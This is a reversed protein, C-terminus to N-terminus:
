LDECFPTRGVRALAALEEERTAAGPPLCAIAGPRTLRKSLSGVDRSPDAVRREQGAAREAEGPLARAQEPHPAPDDVLGADLEELLREIAEALAIRPKTRPEERAQRDIEVPRRFGLPDQREALLRDPECPLEAVRPVEGRHETRAPYGKPSRLRGLLAEGDGVLDHAEALPHGIALERQEAAPKADDSEELMAVHDGGVALDLRPRLDGALQALRGIQRIQRPPPRRPRDHVAAEGLALLVRPARELEALALGFDLGGHAVGNLHADELKMPSLELVGDAGGPGPRVRRGRHQQATVAYERPALRAARGLCPAIEARERLVAELQGAVPAPQDVHTQEGGHGGLQVVARARRPEVLQQQRVGIAEPDHTRAERAPPRDRAVEPQQGGREAADCLRGPVELVRRLDVLADARSGEEGPGLEAM